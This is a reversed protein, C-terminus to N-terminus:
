PGSRPGGRVGRRRGTRPRARLAGGPGEAVLLGERQRPLQPGAPDRRATGRARLRAGRM